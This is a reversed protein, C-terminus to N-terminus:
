WDGVEPPVGRPEERPTDEAAMDFEVPLPAAPVPLRPLVPLMASVLVPAFTLVPVPEPAPTLVPHVASASSGSVALFSSM